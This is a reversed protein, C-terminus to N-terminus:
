NSQITLQRNKKQIEKRQKVNKRIMQIGSWQGIRFQKNPPELEKQQVNRMLIM